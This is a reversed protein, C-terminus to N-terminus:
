PATIEFQVSTVGPQLAFDICYLLNTPYNAAHAKGHAEVNETHVAVSVAAPDFTMVADAIQIRDSFIQPEFKSIFRETIPLDSDFSDALTVAKEAYTIERTIRRCGPIDYADAMQITIRNEECTLTGAYQEGAKQGQGDIIPVSHGFSSTVLFKYRDESFYQRCYRGAGYDFFIQGQQTAFIFSGVDNHNHPEENHGAKVALSYHDGRHIVQKADPLIFTAKELKEPHPLTPDYHLFNRLLERWPVNIATPTMLEKPLLHVRDPFKKHLFHQLPLNAKGNPIGDAFSVSSGDALFSRQMYDSILLINEGQLIDTEGDTFQYLLDAFHVFSGYGYKWYSFGEMCTGDAAFSSLFCDMTKLLRPLHKQLLEPELYMLIGGVHGACVAAWNSAVTDWFFTKENYVRIVRNRIEYEARLRVREDLRDSLLYCIEARTFGTEASFLDIHNLDKSLTGDCHAPLVWSYEDCIAWIIEQLEHLYHSEEPYLLALMAASALYRRRRFYPTEFESRDGDDPAYFRARSYFPLTPIEDYKNAQYMSLAYEILEEYAPDNRVSKWFDKDLAKQLLM